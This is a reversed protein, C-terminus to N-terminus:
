NSKVKKHAELRRKKLESIGKDLSTITEDVEYKEKRLRNLAINSEISKDKQRDLSFLWGAILGVVLMILEIM